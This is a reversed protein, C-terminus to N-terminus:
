TYNTYWFAKIIIRFSLILFIGVKINRNKKGLQLDFLFTTFKKLPTPFINGEEGREFDVEKFYNEKIEKNGFNKCIAINIKRIIKTITPVFILCM